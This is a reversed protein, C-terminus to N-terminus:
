TENNVELRQTTGDEHSVILLGPDSPAFKLSSIPSGTQAGTDHRSHISHPWWRILRHSKADFVAIHWICTEDFRDERTSALYWGAIRSGDPSTVRRGPPISKLPAPSFQAPLAYAPRADSKETSEKVPACSTRLARIPIYVDHILENYPLDLSMVHDAIVDSHWLMCRVTLVPSFFVEWFKGAVDFSQGAPLRMKLWRRRYRVYVQIPRTTTLGKGAM